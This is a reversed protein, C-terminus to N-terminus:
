PNQFESRESARVTIQLFAGDVQLPIPADFKEVMQLAGANTELWYGYIDNGTAGNKTFTAPTWQTIARNGADLAPLVAGGALTHAAYGSFDAEANHLDLRTTTHDIVLNANFLRLKGFSGSAGLLLGANVFKAEDPEILNSVIM